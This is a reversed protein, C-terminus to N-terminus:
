VEDKPTIQYEWSIKATSELMAAVSCYKEVALGLAKELKKESVDGVIKFILKIHTYVSPTDDSREGEVDINLSVVDQRQKRLISLLDFSSCGALGMLVMEMPRLGEDSGGIKAPGDIIASKGISNVCEFKYDKIQKLSVKVM